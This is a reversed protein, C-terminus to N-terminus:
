NGHTKGRHAEGGRHLNLRPHHDQGSKRTFKARPVRRIDKSIKVINVAVNYEPGPKIPDDEGDLRVTRLHGQHIQERLERPQRYEPCDGHANQVTEDWHPLDATTWGEGKMLRRYEHDTSWRDTIHQWLIKARTNRDTVGKKTVRRNFRDNKGWM